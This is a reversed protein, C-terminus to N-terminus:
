EHTEGKTEKIWNLAFKLKNKLTQIEEDKEILQHEAELWKDRFMEADNSLSVTDGRHLKIYNQLKVIKEAALWCKHSEDEAVRELEDLVKAVDEQRAM